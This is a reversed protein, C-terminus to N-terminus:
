RLWGKGLVPALDRQIKGVLGTGIDRSGHDPVTTHASTGDKEVRFMHHSGRVRLEVGGLETIRRM